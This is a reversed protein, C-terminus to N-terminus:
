GKASTPRPLRGMASCVRGVSVVISNIPFTGSMASLVKCSIASASCPFFNGAFRNEFYDFASDPLVIQDPDYMDFHEVAPTIPAHPRQFSMHVFFPRRPDRNELFRVTQDGTFREISHEYPLKAPASGDLWGSSAERAVGDEYLDALDHDLLYQFYHTQRPDTQTADCLDTYRVTEFGDSDWRRVTHSKGFLGSQYGYRRFLCALTNCNPEPDEANRNGFMRHTHVYQGTMFSIRSPGCIPNNAFANPFHVGGAAIEDLNPTRVNPHGAYGTCRANHQDSMLWLVNPRKTM